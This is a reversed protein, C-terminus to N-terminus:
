VDYAEITNIAEDYAICYVWPRVAPNRNELKEPYM